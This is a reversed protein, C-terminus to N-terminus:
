KILHKQSIFSNEMKYIQYIISYINLNPPIHYTLVM